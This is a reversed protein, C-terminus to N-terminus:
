AIGGDMHAITHIGNGNIEEVDIVYGKVESWDTKLLGEYDVREMQAINLAEDMDDYRDTRISTLGSKWICINRVNYYM